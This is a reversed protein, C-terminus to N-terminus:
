RIFPHQDYQVIRGVAFRDPRKQGRGAGTGDEDSGPPLIEESGIARLVDLDAGKGALLALRESEEARNQALRANLLLLLRQALDRIPEAM